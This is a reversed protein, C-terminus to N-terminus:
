GRRQGKERLWHHYFNMGQRRAKSRIRPEIQPWCQLFRERPLLRKIETFPAYELLRTIAWHEDREGHGHLAAEFGINDLDCDWLWPYRSQM